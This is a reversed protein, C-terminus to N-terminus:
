SLLTLPKFVYQKDQMLEAFTMLNEDLYDKLIDESVKHNKNPHHTESELYIVRKIESQVITKACQECPFSTVYLTAKRVSSTSHHIANQAACCRYLINNERANYKENNERKRLRPYGNYGYGLIRYEDDVICAGVKNNEFKSRTSAIEALRMPIEKKSFHLENNWVKLELKPKKAIPNIRVNQENQCKQVNQENQRKM